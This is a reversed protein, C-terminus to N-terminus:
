AEYRGDRLDVRDEPVDDPSGVVFIKMSQSAHKKWAFAGQEFGAMNLDGELHELTRRVFNKDLNAVKVDIHQPIQNQQAIDIASGVAFVEGGAKLLASTVLEADLNSLSGAFVLGGVENALKTVGGDPNQLEVSNVKLEPHQYYWLRILHRVTYPITTTSKIILKSSQYVGQITNEYGDDISLDSVQMGPDGVVISDDEVDYIFPIPLAEADGVASTFNIEGVGQPQRPVFHPNFTADPDTNPFHDHQTITEGETQRHMVYEHWSPMLQECQPCKYLGNVREPNDLGIAGNQQGAIADNEEETDNFFQGDNNVPNPNSYNNLQLDEIRKVVNNNGALVFNLGNDEAYESLAALLEVGYVKDPLQIDKGIVKLTGVTIKGSIRAAIRSWDKKHSIMTQGNKQVFYLYSTKSAVEHGDRNTVGGWSFGVSKCYDKLVDSLANLGINTEVEWSANEDPDIKVTGMAMPGSANSDIMKEIPKDDVVLRGDTYVFNFNKPEIMDHNMFGGDAHDRNSQAQPEEAPLADGAYDMSVRAFHDFNKFISEARDAFREARENPKPKDVKVSQFIPHSISKYIVYKHKDCTLDIVYKKDPSVWVYHGNDHGIFGGFRKTMWFSTVYCQGKSADQEGAYQPHRTDDGWAKQASKKLALLDDQSISQPDFTM